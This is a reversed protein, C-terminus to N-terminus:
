FTSFGQLGGPFTRTTTIQPGWEPAGGPTTTQQWWPLGQASGPGGTGGSPRSLSSLYQQFLQQAYSGAAAPDPASANTANMAQIEANLPAAQAPSVTQTGSVSPILSSYDGIGQHQLQETALGISRPFLNQALGSGPMGSTVGYSAAADNIAAITQPSLQGTLESALAGSAAANAGSLNPFVSSLSPGGVQPISPVRQGFVAAGPYSQNPPNSTPSYPNGGVSYNSGYGLLAM